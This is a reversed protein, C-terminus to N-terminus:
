WIGPLGSVASGPSPLGSPSQSSEERTGSKGSVSATVRRSLDALEIALESMEPYRRLMAEVDNQRVTVSGDPMQMVLVKLPIEILASPNRKLIRVVYRPHFFLLQRSSDIRFGGRALLMQPNIEYIVWLDADAIAQRLRQLTEEFTFASTLIRQFRPRSPTAYVVLEDIMSDIWRTFHHVNCALERIEPADAIHRQM